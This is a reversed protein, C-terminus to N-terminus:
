TISHAGVEGPATAQRGEVPGLLLDSSEFRLEAADLVFDLRQAGLEGAPILSIRSNRPFIV